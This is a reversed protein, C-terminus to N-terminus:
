LYKLNELHYTSSLLTVRYTIGRATNRYAMHESATLLRGTIRRNSQIATFRKQRGLDGPLLM